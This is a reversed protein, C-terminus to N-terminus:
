KQKKKRERLKRFFNTLLAGCEAELVGSVVEAQHNFREDDLLNMFTGCCGAKPDAAGYVVREIRSQLIAGTCMPCPELTAYLTCGELRWSGLVENAQKIAYLEAHSLTEQSIERQNHGRAIITGDHVIVAGIPVENIAEAKEAEVIAEKMFQEDTM